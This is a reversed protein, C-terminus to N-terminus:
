VKYHRFNRILLLICTNVVLNLIFIVSQGWAAGIYQFTDILHHLVFISVIGVIFKTVLIVKPYGFAITVDNMYYFAIIFIQSIALIQAYKVSVIYRGATLIDIIYPALIVFLIVIVTEISVIILFLKYLKSMNRTSTCEYIDPNFTTFLAATVLNLYTAFQNGVSYYGYELNDNLREILVSGLGNSFFDLCGALAIPWCFKLSQSIINFDVKQFIYSKYKRFCYAFYLLSTLATALQYGLAGFKLIIVLVLLCLVKVIGNSLSLLFYKGSERQIRYESLQFTYLTGLWIASVSLLLYPYLPITSSANFFYHYITIAGVVFLSMLFSFCILLQLVSSKIQSRRLEDVKFYNVLYYRMLMFTVLPTIIAAFSSIYGIVAYDNPSLNKALFPNVLVLLLAPIVSALLYYLTDLLIKRKGM